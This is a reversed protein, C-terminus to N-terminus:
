ERAVMERPLWGLSGDALQVQLWDGREQRVTLELGAPLPAERRPAFSPGDGKRLVVPGTTVGLPAAAEQQRVEFEAMRASALLVALGLALGGLWGWFGARTIRWRTLAAWGSISLIAMLILGWRRLPLRLWYLPEDTPSLVQQEELTAFAVRSRAYTLSKRLVPDDPDLRLSRRLALIAGPLDGALLRAQGENRHLGSSDVGRRRLDAFREASQRFM